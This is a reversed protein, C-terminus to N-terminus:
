PPLRRVQPPVQPKQPPWGHMSRRVGLTKRPVAQAVHSMSTTHMISAAKIPPESAAAADPHKAMPRTEYTNTVDVLPQAAQSEEAVTKPVAIQPAFDLSPDSSTRPIFFSTLTRPAQVDAAMASLKRKSSTPKEQARKGSSASQSVQDREKMAVMATSATMFGTQLTSTSVTYGPQDRMTTAVTM